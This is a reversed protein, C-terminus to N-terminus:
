ATTRRTNAAEWACASRHRGTSSVQHHHSFFTSSSPPTARASFCTSSSPPSESEVYVVDEDGDRHGHRRQCVNGNERWWTRTAMATCTCWSGHGRLTSERSGPWWMQAALVLTSGSCVHGCWSISYNGCEEDATLRVGEGATQPLAETNTRNRREPRPGEAAGAHDGQQNGLCCFRGDDNIEM